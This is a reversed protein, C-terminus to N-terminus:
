PFPISLSDICSRSADTCSTGLAAADVGPKGMAAIAQAAYRACNAWDDIERETNLDRGAREAARRAQTLARQQEGTVAMQCGGSAGCGSVNPVIDQTPEAPQSRSSTAVLVVAVVVIRLLAPPTPLFM